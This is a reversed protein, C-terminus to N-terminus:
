ASSQKTAVSRAIVTESAAANGSVDNKQNVPSPPVPAGYIVSIAGDIPEDYV